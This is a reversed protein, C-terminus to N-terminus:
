VYDHTQILMHRCQPCMCSRIVFRASYRCHRWHRLLLHAPVNGPISAEYFLRLEDLRAIFQLRSQLRLTTVAQLFWDYNLNDLEDDRNSPGIGAM